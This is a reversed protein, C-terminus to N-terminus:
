VKLFNPISTLNKSGSSGSFIFSSVSSFVLHTYKSLTPLGFFSTGSQQDEFSDASVNTVTGKLMPVAKSKYASLRVKSDLGVVVVDIDQPNVRIKPMIPTNFKACAEKKM